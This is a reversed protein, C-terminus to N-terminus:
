GKDAAHEGETPQHDEADANNQNNDGTEDEQDARGAVEEGHGGEGQGSHKSSNARSLAPSVVDQDDEHDDNGAAKSESRVSAKSASLSAKSGQISTAKSARSSAPKSPELQNSKLSVRSAKVSMKSGTRSAAVSAQASAAKNNNDDDDGDEHGDDNDGGGSRRGGGGGGHKDDDNGDNRAHIPTGVNDDELAYESTATGQDNTEPGADEEEDDEDDEEEDGEGGPDEETIGEM